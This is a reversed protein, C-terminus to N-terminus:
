VFFGRLLAKAIIIPKEFLIQKRLYERRYACYTKARARAGTVDVEKALLM